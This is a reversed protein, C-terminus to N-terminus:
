HTMGLWGKLSNALEDFRDAYLVLLDSEEDKAMLTCSHERSVMTTRLPVTGRITQRRCPLSVFDHFLHAPERMVAGSAPVADVRAAKNNHQACARQHQKCLVLVLAGAQDHLYMLRWSSKYSAIM